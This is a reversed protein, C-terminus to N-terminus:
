DFALIAKSWFFNWILRILTRLAFFGIAIVSFIQRFESRMSEWMPQGEELDASAQVFLDWFFRISKSYYALEAFICVFALVCILIRLRRDIKKELLLAIDVAAFFLLGAAFVAVINKARAFEEAEMDEHFGLFSHFKASVIFFLVAFIVDIRLTRDLKNKIETM